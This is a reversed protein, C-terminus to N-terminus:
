CRQNLVNLIRYRVITTMDGILVSLNTADTIEIRATYLILRPFFYTEMMTGYSRAITILLHLHIHM